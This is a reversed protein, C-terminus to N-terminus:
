GGFTIVIAYLVIAGFNFSSHAVFSGLVSNTRERIYALGVAVLISSILDLWFLNFIGNIVGNLVLAGTMGRSQRLWSYVVGRFFLEQILPMVIIWMLIAVLVVPGPTNTVVDIVAQRRMSLDGAVLVALLNGGWIGLAGAAGMGAAYSLAPITPHRLGILSWKNRIRVSVYGVGMLMGLGSHVAVFAYLAILEANMEEAYALMVQQMELQFSEPNEIFEESPPPMLILTSIFLTFCLSFLTFVGAVVVDATTIRTPSETTQPTKDDPTTAETVTGLIEDATTTTATAPADTQPALRQPRDDPKSYEYLQGM